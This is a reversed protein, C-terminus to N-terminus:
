ATALWPAHKDMVGTYLASAEFRALWAALQPWPQAAFWVADTHAFQRVFPLVAMDALSAHDGFLWSKERLRDQLSALWAAGAARHSAAFAQASDTHESGYRNPYKYRDLNQKFAGDNAAILTLLDDTEGRLPQLWGDPDHQRLAWLMVDLSEEIVTGDPLVLVPVTGKPSAALLEVPKSRLAVERLEYALGSSALALRARMAYPCRRFSYLVPLTAM